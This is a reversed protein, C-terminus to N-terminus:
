LPWGLVDHLWERCEQARQIAARHEADTSSIGSPRVPDFDIPLWLHHLIDADSTTNKAWTIGRNAARALLASNVPNLTIYVGTAKGSLRAAAATLENLDTFYGSVTGQHPVGPSRLEIIGEGFTQIPTSVLTVAKYLMELDCDAAPTNQDDGDPSLITDHNM